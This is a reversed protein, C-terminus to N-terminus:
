VCFSRWEPVVLTSSVNERLIKNFVRPMLTPQPVMLYNENSWNQNFADVGESGQCRFKSNFRTCINYYHAVSHM